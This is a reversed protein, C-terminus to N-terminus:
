VGAEECIAKINRLAQTVRDESVVCDKLSGYHEELCQLLLAKIATEDPKHPIATSTHYLKELEPEKAAFWERVQGERWNGRRIDKLMERDRQLDIDGEALIQEVENILRVLHAAFKVDYGFKERLAQRKSNPQPEKTSMKHLQAFAYGRFTHWCKKSLFLKRNERVLEAIRSSRIVCNAPTFLSDVMNPNGDMVLQFYRVISYCSIDYERDWEPVRVHEAQFQSFRKLQTGFGPIEGALHPFLVAKTPICFGYVDYDSEETECGYAHSGMFTLYAVNASLWKPPHVLGKEELKAILHSV